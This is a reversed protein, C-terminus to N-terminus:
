CYCLFMSETLFLYKLIPRIQLLEGNQWDVIEVPIIGLPGFLRRVVKIVEKSSFDVPHKSHACANRMERIIDLQQYTKDEIFGLLCAVEMKRSLTGLPGEFRFATSIEDETPSICFRKSLRATLLDDLLSSTLIISARDSEGKLEAIFRKVDVTSFKDKYTRRLTKVSNPTNKFVGLRPESGDTENSPPLEPM